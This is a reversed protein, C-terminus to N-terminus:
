VYTTETDFVHFNSPNFRLTVADGLDLRETTEVAIVGKETEVNVVSSKGHFTQSEVAGQLYYGPEDTEEVIEIHHPRVGITVTKEEGRQLGNLSEPGVQIPGSTLRHSQQTAGDGVVIDHEFMNMDGVFDGVFRSSPKQYLDDSTGIQEIAGDKLVITRDSVALAVEQDHTVYLFTSGTREQIRKLETTMNQRLRRDLSALPEDLLIVKPDKVLCRALAVRQREGGSLEDIKRDGYGELEIVRLMEEVREQRKAKPVGDQRLGFAINGAVDYNPFLALDQFMMNTARDFPPTDTVDVGDLIVSGNTPEVFGAIIHLITSKGSGSPGIISLFEGEEVEFSVDDVATVEQKGGFVKTLSKVELVSEATQRRETATSQQDELSEM